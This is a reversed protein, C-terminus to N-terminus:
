FLTKLLDNVLKDTEAKPFIRAAKEAIYKEGAPSNLFAIEQNVKELESLLEFISKNTEKKM